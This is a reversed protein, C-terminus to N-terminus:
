KEGWAARTAAETRRVQADQDRAIEYLAESRREMKRRRMDETWRCLAKADLLASITVWEGRERAGALAKDYEAGDYRAAM